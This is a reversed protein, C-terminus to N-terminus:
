YSSVRMILCSLLMTKLVNTPVPPWSRRPLWAGLSIDSFDILVSCFYLHVCGFSSCTGPWECGM